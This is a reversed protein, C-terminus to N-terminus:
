WRSGSSTRSIWSPISCSTAGPGPRRPPTESKRGGEGFDAGLDPRHRPPKQNLGADFLDLDVAFQSSWHLFRRVAAEPIRTRFAWSTGCSRGRTSAGTSCTALLHWLSPVPGVPRTAPPRAVAPRPM